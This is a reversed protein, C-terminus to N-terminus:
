NFGIAICIIASIVNIIIALLSTLSFSMVKSRIGRTMEKICNEDGSTIKFPAYEGGASIMKITKVALYHSFRESVFIIFFSLITVQSMRSMGASESVYNGIYCLVVVLVCVPISWHIFRAISLEHPKAALLMVSGLDCVPAAKNWEEVINLLEQALRHNIFDVRAMCLSM